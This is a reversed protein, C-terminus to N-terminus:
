IYIYIYYIYIYIYIYTYIARTCKHYVNCPTLDCAMVFGEQIESQGFSLVSRVNGIAGMVYSAANKLSQMNDIFSITYKFSPNVPIVLNNIKM